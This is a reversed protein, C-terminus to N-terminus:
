QQQTTTVLRHKDLLKAGLELHKLLTDSTLGDSKAYAREFVDKPSWSIYGKYASHNPKGGDVYEVLYGEDSGNEDVPLEWGRLKNYELRTMPNAKVIKTGIYTNM